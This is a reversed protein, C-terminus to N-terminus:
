EEIGLIYMLDDNNVNLGPLLNTTGPKMAMFLDSFCFFINENNFKSVVQVFCLLNCLSM